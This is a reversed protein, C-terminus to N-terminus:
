TTNMSQVIMILMKTFGMEHHFRTKMSSILPECVSNMITILPFLNKNCENTMSNIFAQCTKNVTQACLSFKKQVKNM